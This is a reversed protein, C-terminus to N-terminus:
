MLYSLYAFTVIRVRVTRLSRDRETSNQPPEEREVALWVDFLIEAVALMQRLELAEPLAGASMLPAIM